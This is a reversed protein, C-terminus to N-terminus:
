PAYDPPPGYAIFANPLWVSFSFCGLLGPVIFTLLLGIVLYSRKRTRVYRVLFFIGIGSSILGLVIVGVIIMISHLSLM